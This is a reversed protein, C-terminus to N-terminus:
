QISALYEEYVLGGNILSGDHKIFDEGNYGVTGVYNFDNAGGNSNFGNVTTMYTDNLMKFDRYTVGTVHRFPANIIFSASERETVSNPNVVYPQPAGPNLGMDWYMEGAAVKELSRDGTLKALVLVDHAYTGGTYGKIHSGWADGTIRGADWDGAPNKAASTSVIHFVNATWVNASKYHTDKITTARSIWAPYRPDGPFEEACARLGDFLPIVRSASRYHTRLDFAALFADLRTVAENKWTVDGSYRYMHVAAPILYDTYELYDAAMWGAPPAKLLNFATVLKAFTEDNARTADVGKFMDIYLAMAFFPEIDNMGGRTGTEPHAFLSTADPSWRRLLHDFAIDIDTILRVKDAESLSAYRFRYMQLLGYLFMGHSYAEQFGVSTADYFGGKAPPAKRADANNLSLPILMTKTFNNSQVWFPLTKKSGTLEGTSKKITVEMSFQGETRFASFDAVWYQVGYTTGFYTLRGTAAAAGGAHTLSWSSEAPDVDSVAVPTLPRVLVVKTGRADYGATSYLLRFNMADPGAARETPTDSPLSDGNAPADDPEPVDLSGADRGADEAQGGAGTKAPSACAAWAMLAAAALLAAPRRSTDRMSM